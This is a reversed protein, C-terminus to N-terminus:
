NLQGKFNTINDREQSLVTDRGAPDGGATGVFKSGNERHCFGGYGYEGDFGPSIIQYTKVNYPVAPSAPATTAQAENYVSRLTQTLPTGTTITEDDVTGATLDLGNIRYGKGEYSSFYQLPNFQGPLPDLYERVGDNDLDRFRTSDMNELYPGLRNGTYSLFPTAPNASFGRPVVGTTGAPQQMGGIFFALCEAGNLRLLDTEDGDGNIDIAGNAPTPNNPGVVSGTPDGNTLFDFSPWIERIIARSTRTEANATTWGTATEYLVIYSPPRVGFKLRFDEIAKEFNKIEAVCQTLRAANRAAQIGVMLLSMLIAIIVIVILLEILSFGRRDSTRRHLPQRRLM